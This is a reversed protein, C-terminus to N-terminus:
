HPMLHKGSEMLKIMEEPEVFKAITHALKCISQYMEVFFKARDETYDIEMITGPYPPKTSCIGGLFKLNYQEDDISNSEHYSVTEYEVKNDGKLYKYTKKTSPKVYM